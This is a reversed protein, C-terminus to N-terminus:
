KMYFSLIKFAIGMDKYITKDTVHEEEAVEQATKEDSIYMQDIVRWRRRVEDKNSLECEEWYLRMATDVLWIDYDLRQTKAVETEIIGDAKIRLDTTEMLDSLYDYRRQIREEDTIQYFEELLKKKRRYSRIRDKTEKLHEKQLSIRQAETEKKYYEIAKTSAIVSAAETISEILEPTLVNSQM